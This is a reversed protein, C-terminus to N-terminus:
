LFTFERTTFPEAEGGYTRASGEWVQELVFDEIDDDEAAADLKRAAALIDEGRLNGEQVLEMFLDLHRKLTRRKKTLALRFPERFAAISGTAKNVEVSSVALGIPKGQRDFHVEIKNYGDQLLPASISVVPQSTDTATGDLYGGNIVEVVAEHIHGHLYIVPRALQM